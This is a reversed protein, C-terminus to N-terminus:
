ICTPAFIVSLSPAVSQLVGLYCNSERQQAQRSSPQYIPARGSYDVMACSISWFISALRQLICCHTIRIYLFSILKESKESQYNWAIMCLWDYRLFNWSIIWNGYNMFKYGTLDPYYHIVIWNNALNTSGFRATAMSRRPYPNLELEEEHVIPGPFGM